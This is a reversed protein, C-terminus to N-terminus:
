LIFDEDVVAEGCVSSTFLGSNASVMISGFYIRQLFYFVVIVHECFFFWIRYSFDSDVSLVIFLEM